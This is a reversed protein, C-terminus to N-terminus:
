ALPDFQSTVYHLKLEAILSGGAYGSGFRFLYRRRILETNIRRRMPSFDYIKTLKAVMKLKPAVFDNSKTDKKTVFLTRFTSNL